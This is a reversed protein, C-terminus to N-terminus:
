SIVCYVKAGEEIKREFCIYSSWLTNKISVWLEELWLRIKPPNTPAM